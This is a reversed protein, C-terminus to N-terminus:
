LETSNFPGPRHSEDDDNASPSLCNELAVILANVNTSNTTSDDQIYDM